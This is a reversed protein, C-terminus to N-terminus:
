ALESDSDKNELYKFCLKSVSEKKWNPINEAREIYFDKIDKLM